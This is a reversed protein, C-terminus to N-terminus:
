AAARASDPAALVPANVVSALISFVTAAIFLVGVAVAAPKQDPSMRAM